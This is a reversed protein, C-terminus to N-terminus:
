RSRSPSYIWDWHAAAREVVRPVDEGLLLRDAVLGDAARRVRALYDDRGSYREEISPRPDNAAERQTRTWAFPVSAGVYAALADPAGKGPARWNWGTQTELPVAVEPLRLGARDNGDMDVVPVLAPYVPGLRPPEVTSVGRSWGPGFDLRPPENRVIPFRTGPVDPWGAKEPTTLTGDSLRPYRSVPPLVGDAVWLDLAHVLARLAPRYDIPNTALAGETGAAAPPLRGPGHQVSALAYVRTTAPVEVDTAGAADTTV